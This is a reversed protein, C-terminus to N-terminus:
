LPSPRSDSRPFQPKEFNQFKSSCLSYLFPWNNIIENFDKKKTGLYKNTNTETPFM